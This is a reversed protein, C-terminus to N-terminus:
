YKLRVVAAQPYYLNLIEQYGMGQDALSRAGRQCLGVGHGSGEGVLIMRGDKWSLDFDTSKVRGFGFVRRFVQANIKTSKTDGGPSAFEASLTAVRGTPTLHSVKLTRFDIDSALGLHAILKDRVETQGLNARWRLPRRVNCTPDTVSEFAGSSGWVYKPDESQCGCDASYYAKLVREQSDVLVEGQTETLAQHVRKVAERNSDAPHEFRYVQDMVNSKVDYSRNKRSEVTSLAFSRAAVAQAKLAEMNWLAPMESPLVGSLYVELDLHVIVDFGDGGTPVFELESPISKIGLRLLEGRALLRRTYVSKWVPVGDFQVLWHGGRRRINASKLNANFEGRAPRASVGSLHLDLGSVKVSGASHEIRVRIKQMVSRDAWSFPYLFGVGVFLSLLFTKLQLM